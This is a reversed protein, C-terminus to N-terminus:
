PKSAPAQPKTGARAPLAPLQVAENIPLV